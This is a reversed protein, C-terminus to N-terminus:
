SNIEILSNVISHKIEPHKKELENILDAIKNKESKLKKYKLKKLDAYLKIEKDLFLFLPFVVNGVVPKLQKLSFEVENINFNIIANVGAVANMDSSAAHAIKTFKKKGSVVEVPAKTEYFKLVEELVVGRFDNSKKFCIKDNKKFMKFKRITYLVKKNFWRIFCNKCVKRGNTFEYVPKKECIKCM